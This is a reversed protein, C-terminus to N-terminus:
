CEIAGGVDYAALCDAVVEFAQGIAGADKQLIHRGMGGTANLTSMWQDIVRINKEKLKGVTIMMMNLNTNSGKQLMDTVVEGNANTPRSGIDDGDTLCVLWKGGDKMNSQGARQWYLQQNLMNICTAVADFFATGGHKAPEIERIKAAIKMGGKGKQLPELVTVVKPGFGVIGVLDKAHVQAELIQVVSQVCTQFRTLPTGTDRSMM